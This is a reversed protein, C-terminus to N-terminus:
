SRVEIRALEKLAEDRNTVRGELQADYVKQLIEKFNPGPKLGMRVLDDGNVLPQPSAAEGEERLEEMVQLCYEYNELGGHSSVCDVRHLELDEEFKPKSIFRRLTSRKMKRADMFRMHDKVLGCIQNREENSFRLRRCIALAMQAGLPAHENFRIRDAEEYTPPKGVDHLLVGFALTSSPNDRLANLALVTHRLVDGEPHFEPPQAVGDMRAVEPLVVQLLGLDFMQRIADGAKPGTLIGVLEERVREASIRALLHAHRRIGGATKEEINLDFRRAFRVARLMRLADERFRADPEGVAKLVRAQLDDRGGVYDIVRDQLPDYFLANITFDRRLADERASSFHVTQPHRHDAYAGDRRFTAVETRIGKDIVVSVGFAAGIMLTRSFLAQVEDPRASTAVDFDKAPLNLLMNRVAGGVIYGEFGAKKLRQIVSVAAQYEQSNRDMVAM